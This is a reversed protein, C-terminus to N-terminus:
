IYLVTEADELTTLVTPLGWVDDILPDLKTRDINMYELGASCIIIKVRGFRKADRLMESVPPMKGEHVLRGITEDWGRYEPPFDLRDLDGASFKKLAWFFLVIFVEKGMAAATLGITAVQHLRDYTGSHAFIVLRGKEKATTQAM